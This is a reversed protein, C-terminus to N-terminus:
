NHHDLSKRCLHGVLLIVNVWCGPHFTALRELLLGMPPHALCITHWWIAIFWALKLPIPIVRQSTSPPATFLLPRDFYIAVCMLTLYALFIAVMMLVDGMNHLAFWILLTTHPSMVFPTVIYLLWAVELWFFLVPWYVRCEPPSANAETSAPTPTQTESDLHGAPTAPLHRKREM